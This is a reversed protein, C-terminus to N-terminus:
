REGWGTREVEDSTQNKGASVKIVVIYIPDEAIIIKLVCFSSANEVKVYQTFTHVDLDCPQASILWSCLDYFTVYVNAGFFDGLEREESAIITALIFM